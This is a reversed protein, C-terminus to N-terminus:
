HLSTTELKYEKEIQNIKHLAFIYNIIGAMGRGIAMGFWVGVLGYGLTIGLLYTFPLALVIERLVTFILSTTGKGLAQYTRSSCMGLPTLVFTLSLIQLASIIDGRLFGTGGSYTFIISIYSSFIAFLITMILGIISGLKIGYNLSRKVYDMKKAGFASGSVTVVTTAIAMIPIIAFMILRMTSSYIAIGNNSAISSIIITFASVSLAMVIMEFSAPIGVELIDKIIDKRFKFNKLSISVFTDRKIILWYMIVIASFLSSLLSAIAAGAVGWKLIYIFIPDLLINAIASIAMVITARDMDGEGRLIGSAGSSLFFIIIGAFSITNYILAEELAQGSAGLIQLVQKQVLLMLITVIVGIIILLILSTTAANDANEKNRAGIYRSILSTAGVGIGATIGNVIMFVPVTFGIGALAAAGIGAVWIGDFVNYSAM